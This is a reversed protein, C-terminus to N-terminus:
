SDKWNWFHDIWRARRSPRSDVHIRGRYLGLGRFHLQDALTYLKLIRSNSRPGHAFTIDCAYCVGDRPVHWSKKAAGDITANYEACRIGSNVKLAVGIEDRLRQLKGVHKPDMHGSRCGCRCEFEYALWNKTLRKPMTFLAPSKQPPTVRQSHFCPEGARVLVLM